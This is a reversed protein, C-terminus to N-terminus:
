SAAPEGVSNTGREPVQQVSWHNGDPDDFWVFRGWALDQVPGVAVGRAALDDHAADADDTVVQLGQYPTTAGAPLLGTGFAISCASGPPTIQVFRLEPSVVQNFDVSWGLTDGYFAVARDVDTVPIIVLELRYDVM